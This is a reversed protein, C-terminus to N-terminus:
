QRMRMAWSVRDGRASTTLINMEMWMLFIHVRQKRLLLRIDRRSSQFARVPSNVGGPIRKKSRESLEDSQTM